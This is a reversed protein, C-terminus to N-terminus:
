ARDHAIVRKPRDECFAVEVHRESRSVARCPRDFGDAAIVLYFLEPLGVTSSIALGAGQDSVWRVTCDITSSRGNFLIQAAKLVRRRQTNAEAPGSQWVTVRNRGESKSQYLARDSLELLTEIDRAGAHVSAVGFSATAKISKSELRIENGEIALRLKEATEVAGAQDTNPLVISFEEGGLRGIVDSSRLHRACIAITERLVQDGAAHGFTDNTLKFFDLDFSIVSLPHHHRIALAILREATDKFARRSFADTLVDRDAARRLHLEDMIMHALDSMVELQETDFARPKTDVLCLTGVNHGDKTQLPFGAYFRVGPTAMVYPNQSFRVDETANPVVVANGSNIVYRCFSQERPVESVVAGPSSKYWQRHADIFSVIAVPVDFLRKTLRTIRDFAEEPPTDLVDLDELAKLRETEQAPRLPAPRLDDRSIDSRNASTKMEAEVM